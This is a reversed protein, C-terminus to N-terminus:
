EGKIGRFLPIGHLCIMFAFARDCTMEVMPPEISCCEEEFEIATVAAAKAGKEDVEIRVKQKIKGIYLDGRGNEPILSFDARKDDFPRELGMSKLIEIFDWESEITFRPLSLNVNKEQSLSVKLLDLAHAQRIDVGKKPLVIVLTCDSGKCQLEVVQEWGTEGYRYDNNYECIKHMLKVTETKGGLTTFPADVTQDEDFAYNFEIKCLLTNLLMLKIDSPFPEDFFNSIMQDTNALITANLEARDNEDFKINKVDSHSELQKTFKSALPYDDKAYFGFFNRIAKDGKLIHSLSALEKEIMEDNFLGLTSLFENKTEGASGLSAFALLSAVGFPSCVGHEPKMAESIRKCCRSFWLPIEGKSASDEVKLKKSDSAM